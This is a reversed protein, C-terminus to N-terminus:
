RNTSVSLQKLAVSHGTRTIPIFWSRQPLSRMSRFSDAFVSQLDVPRVPNPPQYILSTIAISDTSLTPIIATIVGSEMKVENAV